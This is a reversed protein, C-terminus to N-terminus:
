TSFHAPHRNSPCISKGTLAAQPDTKLIRSRHISIQAIRKHLPRNLQRNLANLRPAPSRKTRHNHPTPLDNGLARILHSRRIVRSRVGLHDRYPPSALLKPREFQLIALNVSRTLRTRHTQPRNIPRPKRPNIKSTRRLICRLRTKIIRKNIALQLLSERLAPNRSNLQHPFFRQRSKASPGVPRVLNRVSIESRPQTKAASGKTSQARCLPLRRQANKGLM